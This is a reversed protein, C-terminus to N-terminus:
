PSGPAVKARVALFSGSGTEALLDSRKGPLPIERASVSVALARPDNMGRWSSAWAITAAQAFNALV